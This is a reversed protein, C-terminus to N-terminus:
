LFFFRDLHGIIPSFCDGEPSAGSNIFEELNQELKARSTTHSKLEIVLKDEGRVRQV